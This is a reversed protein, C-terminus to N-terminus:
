KSRDGFSVDWDKERKATGTPGAIELTVVFQGPDSYTHMPNQETSTQGDGFDWKWSTAGVSEDTFSVIRRDIDVLKFSWNAAIPKQYKAELPMLKFACLESAQGYMTHKPSLNWF